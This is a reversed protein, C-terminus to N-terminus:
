MEQMNIIKRYILTNMIAYCLYLAAAPIIAFLFFDSLYNWSISPILHAPVGGFNPERTFGSMLCWVFVFLGYCGANILARKSLSYIVAKDKANITM